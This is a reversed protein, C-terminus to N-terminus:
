YGYPMTMFNQVLRRKTYVVRYKKMQPVTCLTNERKSRKFLTRNTEITRAMKTEAYENILERMSQFHVSRSNKASFTIGKVKTVEKGSNTRYSYNKPGASVFQTIYDGDLEDTLQGL